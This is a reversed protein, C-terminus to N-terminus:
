LIDIGFGEDNLIFLMEYCNSHEELSECSPSFDPDGFRADDFLNHLIHCSSEKELAEVSDGPEVVIMYCHRDYDYAEGACVEAFRQEVLARIDPYPIISTFTPDRLIIM